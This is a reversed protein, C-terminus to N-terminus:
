CDVKTPWCKQSQSSCWMSHVRVSNLLCGKTRVMKRDRNKRHSAEEEGRACTAIAVSFCVKDVTAAVQLMALAAKWPGASLAASLGVADVDTHRLLHRAWPWRGAACAAVASNIAMQRDHESSESQSALTLARDWCISRAALAGNTGLAMARPWAAGAAAASAATTTFLPVELQLQQM